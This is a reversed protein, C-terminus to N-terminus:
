CDTQMENIIEETESIVRELYAATEPKGHIREAEHKTKLRSVMNELFLKTDKTKACILHVDKKLIYLFTTFANLFYENIVVDSFTNEIRKRIMSADIRTTSEVDANIADITNVSNIDCREASKVNTDRLFSM